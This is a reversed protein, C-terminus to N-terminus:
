NYSKQLLIASKSSEVIVKVNVTQGVAYGNETESVLAMIDYNKDRDEKLTDALFIRPQACGMPAPGNGASGSSCAAEGLLASVIAGRVTVTKGNFATRHDILFKVSVPESPISTLPLDPILALNTKKLDDPQITDIGSQASQWYNKLFVNEPVKTLDQFSVLEGNRVLDVTYTSVPYSTAGHKSILNQWDSLAFEGQNQFTELLNFKGDDSNVLVIHVNNDDEFRVLANNKGIFQVAFPTRWIKAANEAQNHYTPRFPILTQVTQWDTKLGALIKSESYRNGMSQGVFVQGRFECQAPLTKIIIGRTAEQCEEFNTPNKTWYKIPPLRYFYFGAGAALVLVTIIVVAVNMFGKQNM